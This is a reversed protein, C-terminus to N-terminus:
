WVRTQAMSFPQGSTVLSSRVPSVCPHFIVLYRPQATSDPASVASVSVSGALPPAPEAVPISLGETLLWCGPSLHPTTKPPLYSSSFKGASRHELAPSGWLSKVGTFCRISLHTQQLAM